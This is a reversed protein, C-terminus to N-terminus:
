KLSRRSEFVPDEGSATARSTGQRIGSVYVSLNGRTSPNTVDQHSIPFGFDHKRSTNRRLVLKEGLRFKQFVMM